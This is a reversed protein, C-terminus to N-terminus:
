PLLWPSARLVAAQGDSLTTSEAARFHMLNDEAGEDDPTDSIPDYVAPGGFLDNEKTHYLGLFHGLEHALVVGLHRADAAFPATAIAVGSRPTGRLWPPGPLGAAMGGIGQGVDVGGNVLCSFREIVFVHVGDPGELSSRMLEDLDGGECGDGLVVTEFGPADVDVYSVAEVGIGVGSLAEGLVDLATQLADDDSANEATLGAAGTLHLTLKLAGGSSFLPGKRKVMALVRLPRSVPEKVTTGGERRVSWTSFRLTYRGPDFPVDPSSPLLFTGVERGPVVRNPSFFQAPFGRAIARADDDLDEPERDDVLVDGAPGTARELVVHTNMHASALLVVSAVGPPVDLFVDASRGGPMALLPADHLTVEGALVDPIEPALEPPADDEDPASAGDAVVLAPEDPLSPGADVRELPPACALAGFAILSLLSRSALPSRMVVLTGSAATM